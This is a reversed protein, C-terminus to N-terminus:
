HLIYCVNVIVRKQPLGECLHLSVVPLSYYQLM